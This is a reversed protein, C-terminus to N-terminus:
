FKGGQPEEMKVEITRGFPCVNVCVGCTTIGITKERKQVFKVHREVIMRKERSESPVFNKGIFAKAPCAEVCLTCEGCKVEM